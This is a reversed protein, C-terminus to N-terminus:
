AMSRFTLNIRPETCRKRKPLSHEWHKQTDGEMVLLDGDRLALTTKRTGSRLLFDRTAGLSLSAIVPNEGLDTEDDAHWSVSDAGTRYLNALVGQYATATEAAVRALIAALPEVMPAPEMTISSWSYTHGTPSYWQHLRPVKVTRGYLRLTDERWPIEDMLSAMLPRSEVPKLFGRFLRVSANPLDLHDWPM